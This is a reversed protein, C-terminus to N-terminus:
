LKRREGAALRFSRAEIWAGSGEAPTAMLKVDGAPVGELVWRGDDGPRISATWTLEADCEGKAWALKAGVEPGGEVSGTVVQRELRNEGRLVETRLSLDLRASRLTSPSVVHVRRFGPTAVDFQFRGEADLVTAPLTENVVSDADPWLTARWDSAPKGDITLRGRLVCPRDDELDLEFHAVEGERVEVDSPFKAHEDGPTMAWGNDSDTVELRSARVTYSGPTLDRFAFAGDAAVRLTRPHLDGCNIAVIVGEPSKGAAVRVRGEIAGGVGLTVLVDRAGVKKAYNELHVEARAHGPAEALLAFDGSERATLFFRGDDDSVGEAARRPDLRSDFGNNNVTLKPWTIVHLALRAGAVPKGGAVVRGQIGPLPQ